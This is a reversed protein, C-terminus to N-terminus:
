LTGRCVNRETGDVGPRGPSDMWGGGDEREETNVAFGCCVHLIDVPENGAGAVSPQWQGARVCAPGENAPASVARGRNTALVRM